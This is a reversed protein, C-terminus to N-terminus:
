ETRIWAPVYDPADKQFFSKGAIGDPFRTLVVPRDRLYPLLWPSLARYYALLDGKTYGEEPWFVKDLNKPEFGRKPQKAAPPADPRACDAPPKDPRQRLFVPARLLGDETIEKYQVEIVHKPAVWVHDRGPPLPGKFRPKVVKEAELTKRLSGLEA